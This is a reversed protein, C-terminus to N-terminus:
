LAIGLLADVLQVFVPAGNDDGEVSLSAGVWADIAAIAGPADLDTRLATRVASVLATVDLTQDLSAAERWQALRETARTLQDPTWEWDQRWHHALMALRVAMPDAGDATLRSVLELNGKSKSMKEGDLAVLGSHLYSSAFDKGTLAHAQAACMEHHPFILDAGGGQVDFTTGLHELAIATCEIHWGPRGAGFPSPWSPEGPRAQMWVLCDMPNRKGPREPDGGFELFRSMAAQDALGSVDMFSDDSTIDFYWDDYTDGTVQYVMGKDRLREIVDIVLDITETAGVYHDPPLVRLATMDSRFLDTQTEALARWDVGDREARELLPDDVDTVNQVYNVTLGLDRWVRNVLDFSLYTNAHGLHTADYPTIGCVYMRASGADPGSEVLAGTPSDHVRLRTPAQPTRVDLRPVAPTPWSHMRCLSATIM